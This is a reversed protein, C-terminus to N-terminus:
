DLFFLNELLFKKTDYEKMNISGDKDRFVIHNSPIDQKYVCADVGVSVWDGIQVNGIIKAGTALVLGKGFTQLYENTKEDSSITNITVNQFVALYNSYNNNGLVTGVPHFFIFIDPLNNKYSVWMGSQAKNLLILKDCINKDGNM